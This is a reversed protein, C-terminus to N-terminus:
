KLCEQGGPRYQRNREVDGGGHCTPRAPEIRTKGPAARAAKGEAGTKIAAMATM